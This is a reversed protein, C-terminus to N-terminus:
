AHAPALPAAMAAAFAGLLLAGDTGGLVAEVAREPHPMLGVVNGRGNAVAAVHRASGNPNHAAAPDGAPGCYRLPARGTADLDDLTAEDAQYNGEYSNLPLELVTGPVLGATLASPAGDVRVHIPRCIFSRGANPLLAGPLLGAECLVQFGNCIGLVPVGSAAREAVATMVPSTRAIAGTRLYDGHAFGGPLVIGDYAALDTDRHWVLDADVGALGPAHVV